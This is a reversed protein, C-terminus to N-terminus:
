TSISCRALTGSSDKHGAGLDDSGDGNWGMKQSDVFSKYWHLEVFEPADLPDVNRM